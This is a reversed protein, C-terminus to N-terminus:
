EIRLDDFTHIYDFHGCPAFGEVPSVFFTDDSYKITFEKGGITARTKRANVADQMEQLQLPDPWFNDM